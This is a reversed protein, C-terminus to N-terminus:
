RTKSTRAAPPIKTICQYGVRYFDEAWAPVARALSLVGFDDLKVKEGVGCMM